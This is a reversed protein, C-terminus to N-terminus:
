SPSSDGLLLLDLGSFQRFARDFTVFRYDGAAAFAALYADMWLKPTAQSRDTYQKWCVELDDPEGARFAVRDDAMLTEYVSWAEGSGLPRNGYRALMRETTLLRLFSQQTSRCFLATSPEAIAEFWTRAIPHHVHDPLALTLWVSTDCLEQSM